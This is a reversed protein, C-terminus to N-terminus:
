SKLHCVKAVLANKFSELDREVIKALEKGLKYTKKKRKKEDNTWVDKIAKAAEEFEEGLDSLMEWVPIYSSQSGRDILAWTANNGLLKTFTAPDIAAPGMSQSSFTYTTEDDKEEEAVKKGEGSTHGGSVSGGIGFAGGLFGFSLQAQIRQAAKETLQYRNMESKSEADVIRFLVGGLTHLGAPFHSGYRNLFSKTLENKREDNGDNIAKALIKAHKRASSSLILQEKDINFTKTAIWIYQVVSAHNTQKKRTKASNEEHESAYSGSVNGVFLEYFGGIGFGVNTSSSKVKQVYNAAARSASFRMYRVQYSNNPSSLTVKSPMIILPSEATSPPAYESFYIGCLSRGGSAKLVVEHDSQYPDNPEIANNFLQIIGDLEELLEKPSKGTEQKNWDTPLELLKSIENMKDSVAKQAAKSEDEAMKKADNMLNKAQELKEKDISKESTEPKTTQQKEEGSLNEVVRLEAVRLIRSVDEMERHNAGSCYNELDEYSTRALKTFSPCSKLLTEVWDKSVDIGKSVLGGFVELQPGLRKRVADLGDKNIVESSNLFLYEALEDKKTLYKLVLALSELILGNAKVLDRLEKELGNLSSAKLETLLEEKKENNKLNLINQHLERVMGECLAQELSPLSTIKKGLKVFVDNEEATEGQHRKGPM